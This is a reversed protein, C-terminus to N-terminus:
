VSGKGHIVNKHMFINCLAVSKHMFTCTLNCKYAHFIHYKSM